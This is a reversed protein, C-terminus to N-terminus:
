LNPLYTRYAEFILNLYAVNHQYPVINNKIVYYAIYIIFTGYSVAM